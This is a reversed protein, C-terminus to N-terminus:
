LTTISVNFVTSGLLFHKRITPPIKDSRVTLSTRGASILLLGWTFVYNGGPNTGGLFNEQGRILKGWWFISFIKQAKMQSKKGKKESIKGFFLSEDGQLKVM